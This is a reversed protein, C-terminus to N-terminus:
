IPKTANQLWALTNANDIHPALIDYTQQHYTNLWQREATTLMSQDILRTDIPCWTLNEFTMMPTEHAHNPETAIILNEIRIGYEGNKYYGPENSFVMGAQIPIPKSKPSISNPGEHVSLYCGVGHGTGHDFNYGGQYLFQRALIDLNAGTTGAPFQATHLAIMGKLVRTFRDRHEATPTGLAITRTIDTTGYPYQGGSDILYLTDTTLPQSTKESVRYHCIAGNEAVASIPAFSIDRIHPHAFRIANLKEACSLETLSGSPAHTDLWHLFKVMAVGDIVHANRIGSLETANKCSKPLQCIDPQNKVNAGTTQLIEGAQYPVTTPDLLITKDTSNQAIFDYFEDMPHVTAPLTLGTPIKLPNVFIHIDSQTIVGYAHVFPTCPVDGGRINLLWCVSDPLCTMAMDANHTTLIKQLTAHKEATTQGAYETPYEVIPAIPKAPQEHWAMDVPDTSQPILNIGAIQLTSKLKEAQAYSMTHPNFGIKSGAPYASKIWDALPAKVSHRHEYDTNSVQEALQVTYRGDSFVASKNKGVVCLGASGSFGTLWYLRRANDPIYEGQYEDTITIITADLGMTDLVSLVSQKRSSPTAGDMLGTTQQQRLINLEANLKEATSKDIDADFLTQWLSQQSPALPKPASVVGAVIKDITKANQKVFSNQLLTHISM